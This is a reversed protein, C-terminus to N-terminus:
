TLPSLERRDKRPMFIAEYEHRPLGTVDSSSPMLLDDYM